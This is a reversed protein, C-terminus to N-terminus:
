DSVVEKLVAVAAASAASIGNADNSYGTIQGRPADDNKSGEEMGRARRDKHVETVGREASRDNNKARGINNKHPATTYLARTQRLCRGLVTSPVVRTTTRRVGKVYISQQGRQTRYM